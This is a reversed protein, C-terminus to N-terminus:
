FKHCQVEPQRHPAQVKERTSHEKQHHKQCRLQKAHTKEHQCPLAFNTYKENRNSISQIM